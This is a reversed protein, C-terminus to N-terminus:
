SGEFGGSEREPERWPVTRAQGFNKLEHAVFGGRRAVFGRGAGGAGAFVEAAVAVAGALM